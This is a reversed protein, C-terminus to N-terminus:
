KIFYPQSQVRYAEIDGYSSRYKSMDAANLVAGAMRAGALHLRRVAGSVVEHPTRAWRVVLVTADASRVVALADDVAAVPPTDIVIVDYHKRAEELVADIRSHLLDHPNSAQREVGLVDLELRASRTVSEELTREGELLGVIGVKPSLRLLPSVRPHRLDADILLVRHGATVMSRSFYVSVTTKGEGELASTFLFVRPQQGATRFAISNRLTQLSAGLYSRPMAQVAADSRLQRRVNKIQPIMGLGAVGCLMELEGLTQSTKRSRDLLLVLGAAAMLSAALSVAMLLVHNPFTATTQLSAPSVVRADPEQIERQIQVQKSRALLDAYLTRDATTERELQAIELTNRGDSGAQKELSNVTAQLRDTNTRAAEVDSNAATAMRSIEGNIKARVDALAARTTAVAPYGSGYRESLQAVQAGLTAEQERLRQVLQSALVDSDSGAGNKLTQLRAQKRLLDGRAVALQATVDALQRSVITEGNSRILHNSDQFAQLKQDSSQVKASLRALEGSLWSDAKNIVLEKAAKQDALYIELHKSLIQQALLPSVANYGITIVFSKGDNFVDFHKMYNVVAARQISAQTPPPTTDPMGILGRVTTVIDHVPSPKPMFEPNHTLDLATVVRGAIDESGMIQVESRVFNLDTAADPADVVTPMNTLHARRTDLVIMADSRYSPTLSFVVASCVALIVLTCFAFLWRRRLIIALIDSMTPSPRSAAGVSMRRWDDFQTSPTSQASVDAALAFQESM